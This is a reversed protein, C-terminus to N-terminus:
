ALTVSFRPPPLPRDFSPPPLPREPLSVTLDPEAIAMNHHQRTDLLHTQTITHDVGDGLSRVWAEATRRELFVGFRAAKGTGGGSVQVQYIIADDYNMDMLAHERTTSLTRLTPLIHL